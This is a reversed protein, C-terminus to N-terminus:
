EGGFQVMIDTVRRGSRVLGNISAVALGASDVAVVVMVAAMEM